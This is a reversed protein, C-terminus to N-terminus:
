AGFASDFFKEFIAPPGRQPEAIKSFNNSLKQPMIPLRGIKAIFIPLSFFTLTTNVVNANHHTLGYGRKANRHTLGYDNKTTRHGQLDPKQPYHSFKPRPTPLAAVAGAVLRSTPAAPVSPSPLPPLDLLGCSGGAGVAVDSRSPCHPASAAFLQLLGRNTVARGDLPRLGGGHGLTGGRHYVRSLSPMRLLSARHVVCGAARGFPPYPRVGFRLTPALYFADESVM